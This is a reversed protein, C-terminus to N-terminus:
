QSKGISLNNGTSAQASLYFHTNLRIVAGIGYVLVTLSLLQEPSLVTLLQHIDGWTVPKIAMPQTNFIFWYWLACFYFPTGLVVLKTYVVIERFALSLMKLILM